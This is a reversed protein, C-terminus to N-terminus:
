QGGLAGNVSAGPCETKAAECVREMAAASPGAAGEAGEARGVEGIGAGAAPRCEPGALRRRKRGEEAVGAAAAGAGGECRAQGSRTETADADASCASGACGTNVTAAAEGAFAFLRSAGRKCPVEACTAATETCAPAEGAAQAVGAGACAHRGRRPEESADLRPEPAHVSGPVAAPLPNAGHLLTESSCGAVDLGETESPFKHSNSALLHLM